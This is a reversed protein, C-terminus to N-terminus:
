PVVRRGSGDIVHNGSGDVVGPGRPKTSLGGSGRGGRRIGGGARRDFMAWARRKIEDFFTRM